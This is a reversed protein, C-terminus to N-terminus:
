RAQINGLWARSWGEKAGSHEVRYKVSKRAAEFLAPMEPTITSGPHVGYIHSFHRHGDEYGKYDKDWEMLRGDQAIQPQALHELAEAVQGTLEDEIGLEKSAALFDIFSEAIIEQDIAPGICAHAMFQKHSPYFPFFGNEPSASPVSVLKGTRPDKVLWDVLFEANAKLIPYAKDKLYVRDRTFYFHEMVHQCAWAANQVFIGWWSSGSFEQDMWATNEVKMVFGRCGLNAACRQGDGTRARDIFDIFPAHLESLNTLEAPWYNEQVDINFHFDSWCAPFENGQWVGTLNAPLNGQRSASILLYRGMQFLDEVLDPDEGGKQVLEIREQTTKAAVEQSTTGLDLTARDFYSRFDEINDSKLKAYPISQLSNLANLCAQLRDHKLPVMPNNIDYDTSITVLITVVSTSNITLRDAKGVTTGGEALVRAVTQWATGVFKGDVQAVGSMTLTQNDFVETKFYKFRDLGVELSLKRGNRSELRIAIVDAPHSAIVEQRIENGDETTFETVAVANNMSLTRRYNKPKREQGQGIYHLHLYGIPQYDMHEPRVALLKDNLLRESTRFDDKFLAERIEKVIKAADAPPNQVESRGAWVTGENILIREDPYGGFPMAGLRGNGVPFADQWTTASVNDTVEFPRIEFRKQDKSDTLTEQHRSCSVNSVLCVIIFSLHGTFSLFKNKM